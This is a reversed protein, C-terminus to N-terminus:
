LTLGSVLIEFRVHSIHKGTILMPRVEKRLNQAFFLLTLILDKQLITGTM